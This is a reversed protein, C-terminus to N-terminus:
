QYLLYQEIRSFLENINEGTKASTEIYDICHHREAFSRGEETTVCRDEHLDCKNGVLIVPVSSAYDKITKIWYNLEDFTERSTIDFVLIVFYIPRLFSTSIRRFKEHGDWIQLKMGSPMIYTNIDIGVLTALNPDFKDDFFPPLISTKGISDEGIMLIKYPKIPIEHPVDPILTGFVDFSSISFRENGISNKGTQQIRLYRYPKSIEKLQYTHYEWDAEFDNRNSVSHLEDWRKNDNSGFLKWSKPKCRDTCQLVYGSVFISHKIFHYDIFSKKCDDTMFVYNGKNLNGKNVTKLPDSGKDSSSATVSILRRLSFKTDTYESYKSFIGDNTNEKYPVPIPNSILLDKYKNITQIEPNDPNQNEPKPILQDRNMQLIQMSEQLSRNESSLNLLQEELEMRRSLSQELEDEKTKFKQKLEDNLTNLKRNESNLNLLRQELEDEKTKFKQKFEETLTNLESIKNNSISLNRELDTITLILRIENPCNTNLTQKIQELQETDFKSFDVNGILSDDYARRKIIYNFFLGLEHANLRPSISIFINRLSLLSISDLQDFNDCTLNDSIWEELFNIGEEMSELQVLASVAEDVTDLCHLILGPTITQISLQLLEKRIVPTTFVDPLKGDDIYQYFLDFVESSFEDSILFYKESEHSVSRFFDCLANSRSCAVLINKFKICQEGHQIFCRLYNERELM